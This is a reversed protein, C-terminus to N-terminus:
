GGEFPNPNQVHLNKNKSLGQHYVRIKKPKSILFKIARELFVPSRYEFFIFAIWSMVAVYVKVGVAYERSVGGGMTGDDDQAMVVPALRRRWWSPEGCILQHQQCISVKTCQQSSSKKRHAACRVRGGPPPYM